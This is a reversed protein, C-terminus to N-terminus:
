IVQSTAESINWKGQSSAATSFYSVLATTLTLFMMLVVLCGTAKISLLMFLAECIGNFSSLFGLSFPSSTIGKMEVWLRLLQLMQFM